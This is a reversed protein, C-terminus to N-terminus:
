DFMCSATCAEEGQEWRVQSQDYFTYSFRSGWHCFDSSIVFLNSPDDLYPALLAGALATGEPILRCHVCAICKGSVSACSIEINSTLAVSGHM